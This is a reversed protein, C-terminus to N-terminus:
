GPLQGGYELQADAAAKQGAHWGEADYSVPRDRYVTDPFLRDFEADVEDSRAALVPLLNQGRDAAEAQAKTTEDETVASLREGIGRAFSSLFSSRFSRTRSRGYRDVQSGHRQMASTGQVLLSTFLADVALLDSAFGVVSVCGLQTLWISKCRNANAISSLLHMKQEEYPAHLYIRTSGPGDHGGPATAALMAADISHRAMLAQAGATFTEAEADFTTSEAKALLQRVRELIREEVEAAGHRHPVAQGPPPCIVPLEGLTNLLALLTLGAALVEDLPLEHSTDLLKARAAMPVDRERWWVRAEITEVQHLIRGDITAKAHSAIDDAILDRLVLRPLPGLQKAEPMRVFFRDLDMPLWGRQWVKSLMQRLAHWTRRFSVTRSRPDPRHLILMQLEALPGAQPDHITALYEAIARDAARDDLPPPEAPATPDDLGLFSGLGFGSNPDIGSTPRADDRGRQNATARARSQRAKAKAARRQKNNQGM